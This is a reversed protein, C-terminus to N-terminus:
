LFLQTLINGQHEDEFLLKVALFFQLNFIVDLNLKDCSFLVRKHPTFTDTGCRIVASYFLWSYSVSM